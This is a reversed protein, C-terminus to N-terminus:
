ERNQELAKHPKHDEEQHHHETRRGGGEEVVAGRGALLDRNEEGKGRVVEGEGYVEDGCTGQWAPM